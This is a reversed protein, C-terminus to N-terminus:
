GKSAHTDESEYLRLFAEEARVLLTGVSAASIKLAAAIEKYSLGSHRLVLLKAQREPLRQLVGRVAARQESTEAAAQPEPAPQALLAARGSQMEYEQRRRSSRLANYGLNVAVRYLWGGALGNNRPPRQWYRYFTELALDEAEDPDGTLRFLVGYIREWYQHFIHEFDPDTDIM